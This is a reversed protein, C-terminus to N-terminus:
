CSILIQLSSTLWNKKKKKQTFSGSSVPHRQDLEAKQKNTKTQNQNQNKVKLCMKKNTMRQRESM